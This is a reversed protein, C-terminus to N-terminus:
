EDAYRTARFEYDKPAATLVIRKARPAWCSKGVM